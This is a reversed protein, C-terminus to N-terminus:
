VENWGVPMAGFGPAEVHWRPTRLLMLPHAAIKGDPWRAWFHGSEVREVVLTVADNAMDGDWRVRAGVTVTTTM